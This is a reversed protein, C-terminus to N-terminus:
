FKRLHYMLLHGLPMQSGSGQIILLNNYNLTSKTKDIKPYKTFESEHESSKTKQLMHLKEEERRTM